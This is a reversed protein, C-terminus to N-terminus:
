YQTMIKRSNRYLKAASKIRLVPDYNQTFKQLNKCYKQNKYLTTIKRSNRYIKDASKIRLVPDHNQTFKQLNKCCKQNKTCPWLKSHIESNKKCCPFM